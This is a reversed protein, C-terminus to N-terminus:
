KKSVIFEQALVALRPQGWPDPVDWKTYVYIFRDPGTILVNGNCDSNEFRQCRWPKVVTVDNGWKDGKGDACFTFFVGPRQYSLVAIGNALVWGQPNTGPMRIAKPESWTKGLDRSQRINLPAGGSCYLADHRFSAVLNGNPFALLHARITGIKRGTFAYSNYGPIEEVKWTRGRDYSRLMRHPQEKIKGDPGVDKVMLLNGQKFDARAISGDPLVKKDSMWLADIPNPISGKVLIDPELYAKESTWASEGPKRTYLPIAQVERPLDGLRYYGAYTKLTKDNVKIPVDGFQNGPDHTPLVVKIEEGDPLRIAAWDRSPMEAGELYQAYHTWNKGGDESIYNLFNRDGDGGVSVRVVILGGRLRNIEPFMYQGWRGRAAVTGGLHRLRVREGAVDATEGEPAWMVVVPTGAKVKVGVDPATDALIVDPLYKKLILRYVSDLAKRRQSLPIEGDLGQLGQERGWTLLENERALVYSMRIPIGRYDMFDEVRQCHGLFSKEYAAKEAATPVAGGVSTTDWVIDQAAIPATGWVVLLAIGITQVLRSRRSKVRCTM